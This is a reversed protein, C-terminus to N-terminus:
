LSNTTRRNAAEEVQRLLNQFEERSRLPELDGDKQLRERNAAQRFYGAGQARGLLAVARAAQREARERREVPPLRADKGAATVALAHLCALEYCAQGSLVKVQALEDAETLAPALDGLRARTWARLARVAHGPQGTELRLARECDALAAAPHGLLQAAL